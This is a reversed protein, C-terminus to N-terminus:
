RRRRRAGILGAAFALALATSPEPVTGVFVAEKFRNGIDATAYQVLLYRKPVVVTGTWTQLWQQSSSAGTNVFLGLNNAEALDSGDLANDTADSWWYNITATSNTGFAQIEVYTSQLTLSAFGAGFDVYGTRVPTSFYDYGSGFPDTTNGVTPISAPQSDFMGAFNAPGSSGTATGVGVPTIILAGHAVNSTPLLLAVFVSALGTCKLFPRSVKM